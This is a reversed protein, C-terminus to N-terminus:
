HSIKIKIYRKERLIPPFTANFRRLGSGGNLAVKGGSILPFVNNENWKGGSVITPAIYPFCKRVTAYSRRLNRMKLRKTMTPDYKLPAM